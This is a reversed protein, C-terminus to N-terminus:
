RAERWETEDIGFQVNAADKAEQLSRHWTDALGVGSQDLYFLFWGGSEPDEEIVVSAISEAPTESSKIIEGKDGIGALFHRTPRLLQRVDATLRM